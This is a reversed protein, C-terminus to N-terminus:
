KKTVLIINRCVWRIHTRAVELRVITRSGRDALAAFFDDATTRGDVVFLLVSCRCRKGSGNSGVTPFWSDTPDVMADYASAPAPIARPTVNTRRKIPAQCLLFRCLSCPCGNMQTRCQHVTRVTHVASFTSYHSHTARQCRGSQLVTCNGRM